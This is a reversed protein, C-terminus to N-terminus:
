CKKGARILLCISTLLQWTSISYVSGREAAGNPLVVTRGAVSNVVLLALCSLGLAAILRSVMQYWRRGGVPAVLGAGATAAVIAANGGVIALAAGAVHVKGSHVIAIVMNGVANAAVLGLFLQARRRHPLGVILLAGLLFLTGQLYFAAHMFYAQPAALGLDSVYDTWYSYGPRYGAAVAELVLYGVAAVVWVTAARATGM